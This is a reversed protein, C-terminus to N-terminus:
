DHCTSKDINKQAAKKRARRERFFRKMIGACEEALVGATVEPHHNLAPHGPINFLSECAGAKYDTGGYVVRDVRSMVIAGACMPCPEITVYLTLGSLRWRGLRECAARIAIMEAHATADHDRERLNHGRAVIEGAEDVLVAGIPVEGLAYAQAAEALAARMYFADEQKM